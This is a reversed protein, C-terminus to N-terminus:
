PTGVAEAPRQAGRGVRVPVPVVAAVEVDVLEPAADLLAGRVLPTARRVDGTVGVRAVGREADVAELRAAARVRALEGEIRALARRCRSPADLPHLDHIVLLAAVVADDCLAAEVEPVERAVAMVRELGAGYLDTVARVLAEADARLRGGGTREFCALLEEIREGIERLRQQQESM